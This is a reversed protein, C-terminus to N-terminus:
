SGMGVVPLTVRFHAGKGEDIVRITGNHSRVYNQTISLGLGSGKVHGKNVASGQYFAEFVRDREDVAIGPGQDQVDIVADGDKRSLSIRITGGDPSYKIANSVLNDLIIRLKERDGVVTTDQLDTEVSLNRAKSALKHDFVVREIVKNLEVPRRDVFAPSQAISFNLLNEILKQLQVSNDRMLQAIEAQEDNLGGAVQEKLLESGERITTLPTKLEHSIHRLFTVKQNELELLRLRLWDLRRGLDELDQPGKVGIKSSFEGTGLQRIGHDIQRLPKSILVVFIAALGIAAPVLATSQWILMHQARSAAQQMNDVSQTILQSSDSLIARAMVALTSFESVASNGDEEKPKFKSLREFVGNEQTVLQELEERLPASLQLARLDKVTQQFERRRALYVQYIKQDGLVVFQRANREMGTLQEVLMRSSQIIHAAELVTHRGEETLRDVYFAATVLAFILPITVMGFGILLLQLISKPRFLKVPLNIHQWYQQYRVTTATLV